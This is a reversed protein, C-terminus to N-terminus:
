SLAEESTIIMEAIDSMRLKKRDALLQLRKFADGEAFGARKMLIGKAREITRRSDIAEQLDAAQRQLVQLEHFRRMVLDIAPQLEQMKIPKVLYAMVHERLVGNVYDPDHFGSILIVPIVQGAAIQRVAELGDMDPMRIDTMVLEPSADHCHNVLERGTGGKAVVEHGLHTLAMELFALMRPEDDAIAIRLTKSM